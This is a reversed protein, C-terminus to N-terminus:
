WIGPILRKTRQAYLTYEQGFQAALIKEEAYMRYILGPLLLTPVALLGALSSYGASIGLGMLIFGAYAPHRLFRYPGSQVLTQGAVVWVRGSYKGKLARQAWAIILVSAVILAIGILQAVNGHPIVGPFYLYELPSAYFVALFGPLIFWFSLDKEEQRLIGGQRLNRVLLYPGGLGYGFASFILFWGILNHKYTIFGLYALVCVLLYACSVLAITIGRKRM